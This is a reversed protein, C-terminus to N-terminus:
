DLPLWNELKRKLQKLIKTESNSITQHHKNIKKGYNRKSEDNFYISIILDKEEETLEDLAKYLEQLMIANAALEQTDENGPVYFGDEALKEVSVPRGSPECRCKSCDGECRKLKGKGDSIACRKERQKRKKEAEDFRNYTKYVEETVLVKKGDIELYSQRKNENTKM